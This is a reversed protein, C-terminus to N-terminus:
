SLQDNARSYRDNSKKMVEEYKNVIEEEILEGESKGIPHFLNISNSGIKKTPYTLRYGGNLRTIIGISGLYLWGDIVFSAFGVLGRSPKVPTIEVESIQM